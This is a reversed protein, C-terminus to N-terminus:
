RSFRALLAVLATRSSVGCDRYLQHLYVKVTSETLRLREAIERNSLGKRVLLALQFGRRKMPFVEKMRAYLVDDRLAEERLFIIVRSPVAGAIAAAHVHVASGGTSALVRATRSIDNSRLQENVAEALGEPLRGQASAGIRALLHAGMSTADVVQLESDCVVLGERARALLRMAVAKWVHPELRDRPDDFGFAFGFPGLM